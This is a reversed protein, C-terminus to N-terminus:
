LSTRSIRPRPRSRSPLRTTAMNARNVWSMLRLKGPQSSFSYRSELEGIYEGDPLHTDFFNANSVVPVLFYGARFAWAKQNLEVL